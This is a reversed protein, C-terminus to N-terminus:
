APLFQRLPGFFAEVFGAIKARAAAENGDPIGILVRVLATDSRHYRLSDLVTYIKAAYESAVVRNNSQYWYLVLAKDNGRSVVYQNVRIPERRSSVPLDLTGVFSPVWGNGPLCNKPSHPSQGTQQTQWYAVYLNAADGSGPLTYIRNLYSDAGLVERTEKDIPDDQALVWSGVHAPFEALPRRLPAADGHSMTYFVAAQAVLILTVAAAAPTIRVPTKM